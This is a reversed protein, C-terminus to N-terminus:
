ASTSEPGEWTWLWAGSLRVRRASPIADLPPPAVAPGTFRFVVGDRDIRSVRADVAGPRSNPAFFFLRGKTGEKFPELARETSGDLSLGAVPFKVWGDRYEEPLSMIVRDMAPMTGAM